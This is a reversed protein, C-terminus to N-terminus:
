IWRTKNKNKKEILFIYDSTKEWGNGLDTTELKKKSGDLILCLHLIEVWVPDLITMLTEQLFSIHTLPGLIFCVKSGAPVCRLVAGRQDGQDSGASSLQCLVHERGVGAQFAKGVEETQCVGLVM